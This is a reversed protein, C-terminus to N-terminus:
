TALLTRYVQTNGTQKHMQEVQAIQLKFKQSKKQKQKRLFSSKSILFGRITPKLADWVTLPSVNAMCNHQFYDKIQIELDKHTVKDM